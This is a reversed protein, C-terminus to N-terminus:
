IGYSHFGSPSHLTLVSSRKDHSSRHHFPIQLKQAQSGYSDKWRNIDRDGQPDWVDHGMQLIIIFFVELNRWHSLKLHNTAKQQQLM